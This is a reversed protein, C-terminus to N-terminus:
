TSHCDLVERRERGQDKVVYIGVAGKLEIHLLTYGDLHIDSLKISRRAFESKTRQFYKICLVSM